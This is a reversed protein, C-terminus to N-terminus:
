RQQGGNAEVPTERLRLRIEAPDIGILQLGPPLNINTAALRYRQTGAKADRLDIAVRLRTMDLFNLMEESGRVRVYVEQVGQDQISLTKPVNTYLVPVSFGVETDQRGVLVFWLIGVIMLSALKPRWNQTVLELNLWQKRSQETPASLRGTLWTLLAAPTKVVELTGKEAVSVVGREESIVVALADSQESIGLAARHRTGYFSALRPNESLPLVCGARYIRGERLYLAGDHLPTPPTFLSEILEPSVQADIIVGPSRFLPDLFDRREFVFLAGCRKAALAFITESLPALGEQPLQRFLSAPLRPNVRELMQRIEAQFIVIFFVVAAAGIGSLLWSTLFLGAKQAALGGLGLIAVGELIRIARTGRFRLYAQYIIFTMIGIDILYSWRFNGLMDWLQEVSLSGWASTAALILSEM